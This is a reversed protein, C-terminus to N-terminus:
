ARMTDAKYECGSRVFNAIATKLLARFLRLRM